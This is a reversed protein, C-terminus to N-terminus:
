IGGFPSQVARGLRTAWTFIALGVATEIAAYGIVFVLLTGYELRTPFILLFGLLNVNAGNLIMEVGFLFGLFKKTTLTQILGLVFMLAGLFLCALGPHFDM